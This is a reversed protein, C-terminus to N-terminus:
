VARSRPPLAATLPISIQGRPHRASVGLFPGAQLRPAWTLAPLRTGTCRSVFATSSGCPELMVTCYELQQRAARAWFIAAQGDGRAYNAM